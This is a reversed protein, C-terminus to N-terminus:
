GRGEREVAAHYHPLLTEWGRRNRERWADAREGLVDWGAHTIEIRTAEGGADAFRLEVETAQSADGGLHWSYRLATPPEWATIRGWDHEEGEPTREYIRGGVHRELVIELGDRGSVTHDRPWWTDIRSTWLEFARNPPCAVEFELRLPETV